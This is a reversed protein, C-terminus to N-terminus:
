RATIERKSERATTCKLEATKTNNRTKRGSRRRRKQDEQQKKWHLTYLFM